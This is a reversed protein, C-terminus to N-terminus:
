QKRAEQLEKTGKKREQQRGKQNSSKEYHYAKVGEEKDKTHRSSTKGKHNGRCKCLVYYDM